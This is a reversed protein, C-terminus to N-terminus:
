KIELTLAETLNTVLEPFEEEYFELLEVCLEMTSNFGRLNFDDSFVDMYFDLAKKEVADYYYQPLMADRAVTHYEEDGPYLDRNLNTLAKHLSGEYLPDMSVLKTLLSHVKPDTKAPKFPTEVKPKKKSHGNVYTRVTEDFLGKQRWGQGNYWDKSRPVEYQTAPEFLGKTRKSTIAKKVEQFRSKFSDEVAETHKIISCNYAYINEGEKNGLMNKEKEKGNEDLFTLTVKNESKTKAKFAIKACMENKNNVILSLYFNHFGCNDVLENDDTVSFFVEMNNHSHIHGKKMPLVDPNAMMFKILDQDAPDYETYTATGIDLLFLQKATVKFNDDGFQGETTYFLMGSWEENWVQQCLYTIQAQLEPAIYL